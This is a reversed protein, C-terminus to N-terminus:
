LTIIYRDRFWMVRKCFFTFPMLRSKWYHICCAYRIVFTEVVVTPLWRYLLCGAEQEDWCACACHENITMYYHYTLHRLISTEPIFRLTCYTTQLNSIVNRVMAHQLWYKFLQRKHQQEYVSGTWNKFVGLKILRVVTWIESSNFGQNQSTPPHQNIKQLLLESLQEPQSAFWTNM